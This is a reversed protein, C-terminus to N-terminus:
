PAAATSGKRPTKIRFRLSEKGGFQPPKVFREVITGGNAAIVKQSPVNDLDTTIEVYELGEGAARELMLRLAATAYGRRRKWPVVAYGIHGLVYPPLTSTGHQWRLNISGCFEGDWIWLRYGPLRAVLSGDPLEVPPGQAERDGQRVLFAAANSAIEELEKRATAAGGVNDPSWGAELAAVYRPLHELSPEVLAIPVSAARSGPLRRELFVSGAIPNFRYPAIPEFGLSRYLALAESMTPLTDLRLREYGLKEGEEVLATALRRGLGVGRAEPSVYLRKIEGVGESFRRIAGCGVCAGRLGALLFVGAPPSYESELNALESGIDQFSLDV